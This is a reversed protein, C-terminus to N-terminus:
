ADADDGTVVVARRRVLRAGVALLFALMGVSTAFAGMGLREDTNHMRETGPPPPPSNGASLGPTALVLAFVVSMVVM